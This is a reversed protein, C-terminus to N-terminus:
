CVTLLISGSVIILDFSKILVKSSKVDEVTEAWKLGSPFEPKGEELQQNRM